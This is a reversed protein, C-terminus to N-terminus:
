VRGKKGKLFENYSMKSMQGETDMKSSQSNYSHVRLGEGRQEKMM